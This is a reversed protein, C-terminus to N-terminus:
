FQDVRETEGLLLVGEDASRNLLADGSTLLSSDADSSLEDGARLDEVKVLGGASQVGGRTIFDHGEDAVDGALASYTSFIV